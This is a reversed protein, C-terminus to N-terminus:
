YKLIYYNNYLNYVYMIYIYYFIKHRAFKPMGQYEDFNHACLPYVLFFQM